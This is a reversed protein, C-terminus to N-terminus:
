SFFWVLSLNGGLAQQHILALSESMVHPGSPFDVSRLLHSSRQHGLLAWFVGSVLASDPLLASISLPREEEPFGLVPSRLDVKCDGGPFTSQQLLDM